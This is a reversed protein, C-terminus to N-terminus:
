CLTLDWHRVCRSLFSHYGSDERPHFHHTSFLAAPTSSCMEDEGRANSSIDLQHYGSPFDDRSMHMCYRLSGRLWSAFPLEHLNGWTCYRLLQESEPMLKGLKANVGFSSPSSATPISFSYSLIHSPHFASQAQQISLSIFHSKSHKAYLIHRVQCLYRSFNRSLLLNRSLVTAIVILTL